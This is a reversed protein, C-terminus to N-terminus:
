YDRDAVTEGDHTVVVSGVEGDYDVTAEYDIDVICQICATEDGGEERTTVAVRLEDGDFAARELVATYCGNNGTATGDVTVTGDERTVTAGAGGTGCSQDTVAFGTDTVAPEPTPSPTPTPTAEDTPTDDGDGGPAGQGLCGALGAAIGAGATLLTRRRM